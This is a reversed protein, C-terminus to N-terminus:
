VRTLYRAIEWDTIAAAFQAAEHRRMAVIYRVADEGLMANAAESQELLDAAADLTAPVSQVHPDSYADGATPPPLELEHEIGWLGGALAGAMVLYPNGDAGPTRLEARAEKPNENRIRISTTRSDVAWTVTTGAATEPLLRKYSNVTPAYLATFAPLTHLLGAIYHRALKSLRDPASPDYFLNEGDASWLSQHLHFSSGFNEAFPRAMFSATHGTRDAVERVAHKFLFSDDAAIDVPRPPLNLEYQGFSAEANAAEPALGFANLAARIPGIVHEDANARQVGYMVPYMTLPELDRFGRALLEDASGKFMCFEFEPAMLVDFGHSRMRDSVRTLVTRPAEPLPRGDAYELDTIVLATRELWPVRRYTRPDAIAKWDDWGTTWHPWHGAYGLPAEVMGDVIDLVHVLDGLDKPSRPDQALRSAPLRKGRFVGHTDAAGFILDDVAGSQLDAAMRRTAEEMTESV